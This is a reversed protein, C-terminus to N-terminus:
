EITPESEETTAEQQKNPSKFRIQNLANEIDQSSVKASRPIKNLDVQQFVGDKVELLVALKGNEEVVRAFRGNAFLLNYRSHQKGEKQINSAEFASGDEFIKMREWSKQSPGYIGYNFDNNETLGKEKMEATRKIMNKKLMEMVSQISDDKKLM